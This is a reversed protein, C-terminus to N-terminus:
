FTESKDEHVMLTLIRKKGNGIQSEGFESCKYQRKTGNSVRYPWKNILTLFAFFAYLSISISYNSVIRTDM